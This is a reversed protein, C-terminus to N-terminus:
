GKLATQAWNADKLTARGVGVLDARQERLIEEAEGARTIGGTVIVPISVSDKIAKSADSFYGPGSKGPVTYRCMGGSIDLLDIGAKEFARAAIVGDEITLGGAMHDVAGLRLLIPFDDGVTQRVEKIMELHIRIRNLIDGGYQDARRNTLPSLFQSLLYGHASHIEVGDFGAAKVRAAAEAFDTVIKQIGNEDLATPLLEQNASPNSVASPGVPEMNTVTKEAVSGAHNIQMVAKSGNKHIVGALQQLGGVLRDEAVSLQTPKAQGQRSVYAHEMIM